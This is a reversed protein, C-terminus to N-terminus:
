LSATVHGCCTISQDCHSMILSSLCVVSGHGEDIAIGFRVRTNYGVDQSWLGRRQPNIIARRAPPVNLGVITWRDQLILTTIYLCVCLHNLYLNCLGKSATLTLNKNGSLPLVIDWKRHQEVVRTHGHVVM